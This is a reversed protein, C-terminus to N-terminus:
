CKESIIKDIADLNIDMIRSDALEFRITYLDAAFNTYNIQEYGQKMSYDRLLFNIEKPTIWSTSQFCSQMQAFTILGSHKKTEPDTDFAEFRKQMIVNVKKIEGEYLTKLIEPKLTDQMDKNKKAM